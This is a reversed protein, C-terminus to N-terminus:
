RGLKPGLVAIFAAALAVGGLVVVAKRALVGDLIAEYRAKVQAFFGPAHAGEDKLLWVALVPLLTSSLAYSAIMSFGVALSLPLFLAQAPGEMFLSPLFVAVVCAM